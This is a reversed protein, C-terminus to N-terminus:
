RSLLGLVPPLARPGPPLARRRARFRSCPPRGGARPPRVTRSQVIADYQEFLPRRSSLNPSALLALLTESLTADTALTAPPPAYV